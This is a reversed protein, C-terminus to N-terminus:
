RVRRNLIDWLNEVPNLDPSRALWPTVTRANELLFDMVACHSRVNDDMFLPRTALAYNDFLPVVVTELMDRQYRPGNFIANLLSWIWSAIMRSANGCWLQWISYNIAYHQRCLCKTAEVCSNKWRVLPDKEVICAEETAYRLAHWVHKNTTTDSPSM